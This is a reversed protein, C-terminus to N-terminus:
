QPTTRARAQDIIQKTAEAIAAADQVLNTLHTVIQDDTAGRVLETYLNLLQDM